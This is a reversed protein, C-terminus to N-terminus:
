TTSDGGAALLGRAHLQGLFDAVAAACEEETVEFEATLAAVLATQSVPRELLEWIRAGVENLGHYQGRAINLMLLAGDVETALVGDARHVPTDATLTDNITAANM